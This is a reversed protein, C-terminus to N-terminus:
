GTTGFGLHVDLDFPVILFSVCTRICGCSHILSDFTGLIQVKVLNELHNIHLLWKVVM